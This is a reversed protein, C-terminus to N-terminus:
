SAGDTTGELDRLTGHVLDSAQTSLILYATGTSTADNIWRAVRRRAGFRSNMAVATRWASERCEDITFVTLREDLRGLSEDATELGEAGFAFLDEQADDIIDAIVQTVECHDRYKTEPEPRVGAEDIALALDYNIHANIGLLADQLVLADGAMSADFSLQWPDPLAALDGAEYARVAERYLDAFAVLYDTVWDPDEFEGRDVRRAVEGTMRSYITLFVARRDDREEFVSRLSELRRHTEALGEYPEEVMSLVAEDGARDSEAPPSARLSRVAARLQKGRRGFLPAATRM